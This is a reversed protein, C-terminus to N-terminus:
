HYRSRRRVRTAVQSSAVSRPRLSLVTGKWGNLRHPQWDQPLHLHRLLDPNVAADVIGRLSVTDGQDCALVFNLPRHTVCTDCM